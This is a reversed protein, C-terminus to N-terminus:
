RPIKKIYPRSVGFFLVLALLSTWPSYRLTEPWAAVFTVNGLIGVPLDLLVKGVRLTQYSAVPGLFARLVSYLSAITLASGILVLSSLRTYHVVILVVAAFLLAIGVFIAVFRTKQGSNM